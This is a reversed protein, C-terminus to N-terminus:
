QTRKRSSRKQTQTTSLKEREARIRDLLASAPEDNPDQPVLEGRFAKALISQNLIPLDESIDEVMSYVKEITALQQEIAEIIKGQEKLPPMPFVFEDIQSTFMHQIMSGTNLTNVYKRFIPSKFLWLCFRPSLISPKLRAIRQNLLCREDKRTLCVRGLFEDALSQATLNIVLENEQVIYNPYKAAWEEPMYRTNSNTWEIDGSVHLNGPRLLKVGDTSYEKSPFARGNQDIGIQKWNVWCWNKPLRPLNNTSLDCCEQYKDKWTDNKPEKGKARMKELEAEEWKQRREERIRELLKEAPEIDPNKKRWDATLDGRFAAALVSQRFQDILAPIEDLAQQSRLTHARLEEIKAVIRRQENLPPIPIPIRNLNKQNLKPQASGSVFSSLDISNIYQRLYSLPIIDNITKVIHAHNNVWFKGSAEFAIPTSRRLLNAGDEAILLYEGDFLFDDITDIIGSAGYYPYSGRRSNRVSQSVPVRKGDLNEIIEELSILCWHTPLDLLAPNTFSM